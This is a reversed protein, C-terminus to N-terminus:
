GKSQVQLGRSISMKYGPCLNTQKFVHMSNCFTRSKFHRTCHLQLIASGLVVSVPVVRLITCVLYLLRATFVTISSHLM